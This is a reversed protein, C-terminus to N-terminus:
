LGGLQREWLILWDLLLQGPTHALLYKARGMKLGSTPKPRRALM